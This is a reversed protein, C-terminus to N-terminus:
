QRVRYLVHFDGQYVPTLCQDAFQEFSEWHVSRPDLGRQIFFHLADTNVLVHSIGAPRLCDLVSEQRALLPWNNLLNDQIVPVDFYYGRTEFIMLIRSHQPLHRNVYSTIDSYAHNWTPLQNTQLYEQMSSTGSLYELTTTESLWLYMTAGSPALALITLPVCLLTAKRISLLRMCLRETMHIAVITLPVVAPILYRLNTYRYPVTVIMVYCVAPILLWNLTKNRFFVVWLPLLLLIPNMFYLAGESELVLRGPAIFLDYLNFPARLQLHVNVSAPISQGSYFPALWTAITKEAFLPYLPAQFLIWNKALWPLATVGVLLGFLFLPRVSAILTRSRSFAVWFILPSLALMYALAHYKIGFALGLLAASLFFFSQSSSDALAKLLAYHALFLYFALTVDVRPTIAVLVLMPTGWLVPLSLSATPGNLFRLCFGFVALGLMLAFFASVLAPGSPSGFALLPIYLMHALQVFATHPNDEPLYIKGNLLFQDPVRLHYMLSDWDLPPTLARFVMFLAIAVFISLSLVSSNTRLYSISKLVLGPLERLEKWTLLACSLLLLGLIPVQLGSLLGCILVLTSLLGGGVATSFVFAELPQDFVYGCRTLAFSGAAACIAFLAIVLTLHFVHDLILLPGAYGAGLFKVYLHASALGGFLSLLILPGLLGKTNEINLRLSFGNLPQM